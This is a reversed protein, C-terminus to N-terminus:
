EGQDLFVKEASLDQRLEFKVEGEAHRLASICPAVRILQRLETLLSLLCHNIRRVLHLRIAEEESLTAEDDM